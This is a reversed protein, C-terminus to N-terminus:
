FYFRFFDVNRVIIKKFCQEKIIEQNSNQGLSEGLIYFDASSNTKEHKLQTIHINYDLCNLTLFYIIKVNITYHTIVLYIFLKCSDWKPMVQMM